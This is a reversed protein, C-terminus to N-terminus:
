AWSVNGSGGTITTIKESGLTTTSGSLGAGITITASAPYRFVVVGSGGNRRGDYVGAGAGNGTNAAGAVNV